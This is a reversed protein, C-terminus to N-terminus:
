HNSIMIEQIEKQILLTDTQRDTQRDISKKFDKNKLHKKRM